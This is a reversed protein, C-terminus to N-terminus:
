KLFLDHERFGLPAVPYARQFTDQAFLWAQLFTPLFRFPGFNGGGQSAHEASARQKQRWYRRYNIYTHIQDASLGIRTFDIDKNQGMKTPDQGRLRMLFIFPKIWRNSIATYYLRQPQHPEGLEPYATASAALHFAATVLQWCRIHDPHFYGGTEDHTIVVDPKLQRILAVIRGIGGVEDCNVFALPHRNDESGVMGSDRYGLQHLRGGLIAVAKELEQQRVAVLQDHTAEHGEAISGAAGDTAICLHVDVGEAAYKAFTGGPGFSEDDPHALVALLTRRAMKAERYLFLTTAKLLGM